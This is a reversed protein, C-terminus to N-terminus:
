DEVLEVELLAVELRNLAAELEAATVGVPGAARLARRMMRLNKSGAELYKEFGTLEGREICFDKLETLVYRDPSNLKTALVFHRHMALTRKDVKSLAEDFRQVIEYADSALKEISKAAFEDVTARGFAQASAVTKKLMRDAELRVSFLWELTKYKRAWPKLVFEEYADEYTKDWLALQVDTDPSEPVDDIEAELSRLKSFLVLLLELPDTPLARMLVDDTTSM